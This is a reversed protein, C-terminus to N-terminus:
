FLQDLRGSSDGISEVPVGAKDAMTLFLNTMPTNNKYKIHRGSKIGTAAGGAVLIPLDDHNHRDGDGIGGGYVVMTNDLLTRDGERVDRMKRLMYALNDVHFQNIKRIAELKEANRQHHSLEHHGDNVGIMKYSRNSGENAFMFTGVRTIDTQFALVMMDGLLRVHETYDAPIGSPMGSLKNTLGAQQSTQEAVTLRREIERVGTMYEDLKMRDTVGLKNHLSKADALVFDLISKNEAIRADRAAPTENPDGNQFLREFVLRPDVEKAVPTNPSRWSISNSYACSYGSDCDGALGGRECGIEISSFRTKDGIHNAMLQDFSIGAQINAGSTKRPHCGTLWAAASRAHDGAGDGLAFANRQTLGTLLNVNAKLDALPALVSPLVDSFKGEAKPTWHEMNIGNPVFVFAMRVPHKSKTGSQALATLPMMAELLPLSLATGFGRLVMRRDISQSM